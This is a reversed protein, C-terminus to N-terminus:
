LNNKNEETQKINYVILWYFLLIFWASFYWIGLDFQSERDSFIIALSGIGLHVFILVWYLHILQRTNNKSQRYRRFSLFLQGITIIPQAIGLLLFFVELNTFHFIEGDFLLM